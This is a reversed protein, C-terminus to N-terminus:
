ACGLPFSEPGQGCHLQIFGRVADRNYEDCVMTVTWAAMAIPAPVDPNPQVIVGSEAGSGSYSEALDELDEIESPSLDDPRYHVNVGGHELNHVIQEPPLPEGYVGSQATSGYHPGSSPPNSNYPEHEAGVQIHQAGQEDHSTPGECGAAAWATEFEERELAQNRLVVFVVAGIVALVVVLALVQLLRKRRQKRRMEELRAKRAAERRARRQEKKSPKNQSM